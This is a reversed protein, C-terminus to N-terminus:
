LALPQKALRLAVNIVSATAVVHGLSRTAGVNFIYSPYHSRKGDRTLSIIRFFLMEDM